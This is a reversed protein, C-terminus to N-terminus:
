IAASTINGLVTPGVSLVLAIGISFLAAVLNQAVVAMFIGAGLAALALVTGLSGTLWDTLLTALASFDTNTGAFVMMSLMAAMVGVIAVTGLNASFFQAVRSLDIAPKATVNM